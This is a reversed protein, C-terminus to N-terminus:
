HPSASRHTFTTRLYGSSLPLRGGASPRANEQDVAHPFYVPRDFLRFAVIRYFEDTRTFSAVARSRLAKSMIISHCDAKLNLSRVACFFADDSQFQHRAFMTM